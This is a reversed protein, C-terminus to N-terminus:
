DFMLLLMRLSCAKETFTSPGMQEKQLVQSAVTNGRERPIQFSPFPGLQSFVLCILGFSVPPGAQRSM